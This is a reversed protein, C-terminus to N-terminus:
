HPAPKKVRPVLFSKPRGLVLFEDNNGTHLASRTCAPITPAGNLSDAYVIWTEGPPPDVTRPACPDLM